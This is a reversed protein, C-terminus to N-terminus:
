CNQERNKKEVAIFFDLSFLTKPWQFSLYNSIEGQFELPTSYVYVYM